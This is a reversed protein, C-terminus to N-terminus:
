WKGGLKRYRRRLLVLAVVGALTAVALTAGGILVWLHPEQYQSEAARAVVASVIVGLVCGAGFVVWYLAFRAMAYASYQAESEFRRQQLHRLAEDIQEPTAKDLHSEPSMLLKWRERMAQDVIHEPTDEVHERTDEVHERTDEVDNM